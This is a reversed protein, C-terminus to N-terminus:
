RMGREAADILREALKRARAANRQESLLRLKAHASHYREIRTNM